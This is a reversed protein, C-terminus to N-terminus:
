FVGLSHLLAGIAITTALWPQVKMLSVSAGKAEAGALELARLRLDLHDILVRLCAIDSDHRDSRKEQADLRNTGADIMAEVLRIDVGVPPM